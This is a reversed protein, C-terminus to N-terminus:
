TARDNTPDRGAPELDQSTVRLRAEKTTACLLRVAELVVTRARCQVRGDPLQRGEVRRDGMVTPRPPERPERQEALATRPIPPVKSGAEHDELCAKADVRRATCLPDLQKGRHRGDPLMKSGTETFVYPM